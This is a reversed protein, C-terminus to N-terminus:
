QLYNEVERVPHEREVDPDQGAAARARRRRLLDWAQDLQEELHQLRERDEDTIAEGHGRLGHEERVLDSIHTLMGGDDM